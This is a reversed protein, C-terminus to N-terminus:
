VAPMTTEETGKTRNNMIFGDSLPVIICNGPYGLPILCTRESWLASTHVCPKLLLVLDIKIAHNIWLSLKLTSLSPLSCNRIVVWYFKKIIFFRRENQSLCTLCDALNFQLSLNCRSIYWVIKKFITNQHSKLYTCKSSYEFAYSSFFSSM